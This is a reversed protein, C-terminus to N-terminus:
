LNAKASEASLRSIGLGIATAGLRAKANRAFLYM